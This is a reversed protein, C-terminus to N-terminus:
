NILTGVGTFTDYNIINSTLQKKTFGIVTIRMMALLKLSNKYHLLNKNLIMRLTQFLGRCKYTVHRYMSIPCQKCIDDLQQFFFCLWVRLFCFEHLQTMYFLVEYFLEASCCLMLVVGVFYRDFPSNLRFTIILFCTSM